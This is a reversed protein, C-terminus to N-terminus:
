DVLIRKIKAPPLPQTKLGFNRKKERGQGFTGTLTLFDARFNSNM